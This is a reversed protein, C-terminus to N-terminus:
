GLRSSPRCSRIRGANSIIISRTQDDFRCPLSLRAEYTTRGPTVPLVVAPRNDTNTSDTVRITRNPDAVKTSLRSWGIKVVIVGNTVAAATAPTCPWQPLGGDNYPASDSCITVRPEPLSEKVRAPSDTLEARAVATNDACSSGISLRNTTTSSATLATGSFDGLCPNATALMAVDKNGGMVEALDRALNAAVSQLRAERNNQLATAQLGVIGSLGFSLVVLAVLVEILSFGSAGRLGQISSRM